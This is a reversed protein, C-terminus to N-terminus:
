KLGGGVPVGAFIRMYRINGCVSGYAQMKTAALIPRDKNLNLLRM